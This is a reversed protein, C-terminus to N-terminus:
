HNIPRGTWSILRLTFPCPFHPETHTNFKTKSMLLPVYVSPTNSFM